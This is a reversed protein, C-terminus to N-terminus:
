AMSRDVKSGKLGDMLPIPCAWRHISSDGASCLRIQHLWSEVERVLEIPSVFALWSVRGISEGPPFM